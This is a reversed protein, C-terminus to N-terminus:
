DVIALKPNPDPDNFLTSLQSRNVDALRALESVTIEREDMVARLREIVARPTSEEVGFLEAGAATLLDLYLQLSPNPSLDAFLARVHAAKHGSGRAVEEES